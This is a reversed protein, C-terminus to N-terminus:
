GRTKAIDSHKNDLLVVEVMDQINEVGPISTDSYGEKALKDIVRSALRDALKRDEVSCAKMAKYIANSIKSKDFKTVAGSRKTVSSIMPKNKADNM